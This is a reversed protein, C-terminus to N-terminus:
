RRGLNRQPVAALTRTMFGRRGEDILSVAFIVATATAAASASVPPSATWIACPLSGASDAFVVVLWDDLLLDEEALAELVLVDLEPEDLEFEDSELPVATLWDVESWAVDEGAVTVVRVDHALELAV